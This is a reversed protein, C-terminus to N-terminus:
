DERALEDLTVEFLDAILILKDVKPKTLGSKWESLTSTSIGTKKSVQYDTYGKADRIKAYKSYNM